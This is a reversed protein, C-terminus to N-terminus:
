IKIYKLPNQPVRTKRRRTKVEDNNNGPSNVLICLTICSTLITLGKPTQTNCFLYLTRLYIINICSLRLRWVVVCCRTFVLIARQWLQACWLCNVKWSTRSEMWDEQDKSVTRVCKALHPLFIFYFFFCCCCCRFWLNASRFPRVVCEGFLISIQLKQTFCFIFDLVTVSAYSKRQPTPPWGSCM